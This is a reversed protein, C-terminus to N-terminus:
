EELAEDYAQRNIEDFCFFRVEQGAARKPQHPHHPISL